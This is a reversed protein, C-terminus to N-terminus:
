NSIYGNLHLIFTQVCRFKECNFDLNLWKINRVIEYSTASFILNTIEKSENASLLHTHWNFKRSVYEATIEIVIAVSILYVDLNNTIKYLLCEQRAGKAVLGFFYGIYDGTLGYAFLHKRQQYGLVQYLPVSRSKNRHLGLFWTKDAWWGCVDEDFKWRYGKYPLFM